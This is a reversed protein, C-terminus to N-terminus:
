NINSYPFLLISSDLIYILASAAWSQLISELGWESRMGKSPTSIALLRWRMGKKMFNKSMFDYGKMLRQMVEVMMSNWGDM